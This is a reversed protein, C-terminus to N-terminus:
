MRKTCRLDGTIEWPEVRISALDESTLKQLAERTSAGMRSVVGGPSDWGPRRNQMMAMGITSQLAEVPSM